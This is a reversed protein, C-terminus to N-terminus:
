FRVLMALNLRDESKVLDPEWGTNNTTNWGDPSTIGGKGVFYPVNAFRHCFEMRFTIYDEPMYDFTITSDWAKFPLGPSVPFYGSTGTVSNAGGSPGTTSSQIPPILVLYRGPNTMAGGGLTLAFKDHSFWTRNYFMFGGFYQRTSSDGGFGSVGEGSEFGLDGTLSFAAKSLFNEPRDLYKVQLSNDTHFRLRDPLNQTDRGYYNNSLISLNGNPRWLVQSGFGPSENYMGYSQWGNM